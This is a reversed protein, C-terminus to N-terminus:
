LTHVHSNRGRLERTANRTDFVLQAEQVIFKYDIASHDTLIVVCDQRHLLEANLHESQRPCGEHVFSPIHPDHYAVHAGKQNLLSLVSLAPSERVDSVDRKYSVGLILINSDRVAKKEQNLLEAIRDVVYVPMHTNIQTAHDIFGSEAGDVRARWSLYLPDVPICHGGWGPGPYFPMYGFPKTAAADIVRWIDIGMRHAMLALENALGINVARFTNELLKSLEAEECSAMQIVTDFVLSYFEAARQTSARDIGGVLKPIERLPYHKNGPDIREPSFALYFDKGPRLGSRELLPAVLEETAGPYVTSELIVTQGSRLVRSIRVAADTVYSVDPEQSKRLPTPVCISMAEVSRLAEYEQTPVLMNSGVAWAVQDCAVDSVYSRGRRLMQVKAEDCDVGVVVVGAKCFELALPLGVYGLGVVGVRRRTM